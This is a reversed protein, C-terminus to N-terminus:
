YDKGLASNGHIYTVKNVDYLSSKIVELPKEQQRAAELSNCAKAETTTLTTAMMTTTTTTTTTPWAYQQEVLEGALIKM